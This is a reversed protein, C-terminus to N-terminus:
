IGSDRANNGLVFFETPYMYDAGIWLGNHYSSGVRVAHLKPIFTRSNHGRYKGFSTFQEVLIVLENEDIHVVSSPAVAENFHPFHDPCPASGNM